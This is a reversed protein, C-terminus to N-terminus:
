TTAQTYAGEMAARLEESQLRVVSRAVKGVQGPIVDAVVVRVRHFRPVRSGIPMVGDTGGLGIPVVAAGTRAALFM